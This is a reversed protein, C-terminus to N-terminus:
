RGGGRELVPAPVRVEAGSDFSLTLTVTDGVALEEAIDMIMIHHGGPELQAAGGAPLPVEEVQKMTSAGSETIETTHIQTTQSATSAAGVLADDEAGSNQVTLYAAGVDPRAPVPVWAGSVAIDGSSASGKGAQAADPTATAAPSPDTGASSATGGCGSLALATLGAAAFALAPRKTTTM